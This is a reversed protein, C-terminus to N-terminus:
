ANMAFRRAARRLEFVQRTNQWAPQLDLKQLFTKAAAADTATLDGNPDIVSDIFQTAEVLRQANSVFAGARSTGGVLDMISENLFCVSISDLIAKVADLASKVAQLDAKALPKARLDIARHLDAHSIHRRQWDRAFESADVAQRVLEEVDRRLAPDTCLDPLRQVTLHERVRMGEGSTPPDTLRTLCLMMDTWFMQQVDRFFGSGLVNLLKVREADCFLERFERYRVLAAAWHNRLSYFVMSFERGLKDEYQTLSELRKMVDEDMLMRLFSDNSANQIVEGREWRALTAEGFGTLRAFAARSLGHSERLGRIEAPTLLGLNRCVAEHRAIEAEEGTYSVNCEACTHVPVDASLETADAGAGYIFPDRVLETTLGSAGCLECSDPGPYPGLVTPPSATRTM